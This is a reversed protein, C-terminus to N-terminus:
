DKKLYNPNKDDHHRHRHCHACLMVCKDLEPKMRIWSWNLNFNKDKNHKDLHHFDYLYDPFQQKCDFCCNGKYAIARAKAKKLLDLGARNKCAICYSQLGTKDKQRQSKFDSCNVWHQGYQCWKHNIGDIEQYKILQAHSRGTKGKYPSCELCYSRDNLSVRVNNIYVWYPFPKHCYKCEIM